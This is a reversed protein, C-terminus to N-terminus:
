LLAFFDTSIKGVSKRMSNVSNVAYKQLLWEKYALLRSKDIKKDQGLFVFFTKIDTIYKKVTAAANEREHLYDAFAITDHESLEISFNLREM